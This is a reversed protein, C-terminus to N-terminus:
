QKSEEFLSTKYSGASNVTNSKTKHRSIFNNVRAQNKNPNEDYM